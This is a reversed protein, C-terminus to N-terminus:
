FYLSLGFRVNSTNAQFGSNKSTYKRFSTVSVDDERTKRWEYLLTIAYESHFSIYPTAFWEVGLVGSGGFGWSRDEDKLVFSTDRQGDYYDTKIIERFFQMSPGMGWFM